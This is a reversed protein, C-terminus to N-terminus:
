PPAVAVCWRRVIRKRREIETADIKGAARSSKGAGARLSHDKPRAAASM